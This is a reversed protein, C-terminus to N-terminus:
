CFNSLMNNELIENKLWKWISQKKPTKKSKLDRKQSALNPEVKSDMQLTKHPNIGSLKM